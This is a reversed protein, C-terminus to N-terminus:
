CIFLFFIWTNVLGHCHHTYSVLTWFQRKGLRLTLLWRQLHSSPIMWSWLYFMQIQLSPVFSVLPGCCFSVLPQEGCHHCLFLGPHPPTWIVSLLFIHCRLSLCLALELSVLAAHCYGLYRAEKIVYEVKPLKWNAYQRESATHTHACACM